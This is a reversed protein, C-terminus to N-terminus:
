AAAEPRGRLLSKIGSASVMNNRAGATGTGGVVVVVPPQAPKTAPAAPQQKQPLQAPAPETYIEIIDGMRLAVAPDSELQRNIVVQPSGAVPQSGATVATGGLLCTLLLPLLALLLLGSCSAGASTWM